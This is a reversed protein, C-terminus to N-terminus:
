RAIMAACNHATPTGSLKHIVGKDSVLITGAVNVGIEDGIQHCERGSLPFDSTSKLRKSGSAIITLGGVRDTTVDNQRVSPDAVRIDM